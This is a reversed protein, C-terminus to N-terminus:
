YFNFSFGAVVPKGDAAGVRVWYIIEHRRKTNASGFSFKWLFDMVKGQDLRGFYEMGSFEGYHRTLTSRMKAFTDAPMRRGGQPQAEMFPKFDGSKLSEALGRALQEAAAKAAAELEPPFVPAPATVPAVAAPQTQPGPAPAPKEEAGLASFGGAAVMAAVASIRIFRTIM